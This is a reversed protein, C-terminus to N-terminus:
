LQFGSPNSGNLIRPGISSCRSPWHRYGLGKMPWDLGVRGKTYMVWLRDMFTPGCTQPGKRGKPKCSGNGPRGAGVGTLGCGAGAISLWSDTWVVSDIV